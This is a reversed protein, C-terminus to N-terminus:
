QRGSIAAGIIKELMRICLSCLCTKTCESIAQKSKISVQLNRRFRNWFTIQQQSHTCLTCNFNNFNLLFAISVKELMLWVVKARCPHCVTPQLFFHTGKFLSFLVIDDDRIDIFLEPSNIAKKFSIRQSIRSKTISLKQQFKISFNM